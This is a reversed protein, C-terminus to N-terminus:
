SEMSGSCPAPTWHTTLSVPDEMGRLVAGFYIFENEKFHIFVTYCCENELNSESIGFFPCLISFINKTSSRSAFFFWKLTM